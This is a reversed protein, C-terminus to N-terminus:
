RRSSVQYDDRLERRMVKNSATRPLEGVIVLDHVKFLPNLRDAILLALEARLVAIDPNEAVVVYLVLRDAGEEGGQVAIAASEYVPDHENVVRELEVSSVKIGGLNMTDDTRGGAKVFGHRLATMADGHRRLTEGEPGRPCGSFYVEHHDAGILRQSLGISPPM